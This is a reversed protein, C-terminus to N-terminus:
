KLQLFFILPTIACYIILRKLSIFSQLQTKLQIEVTHKIESWHEMEKRWSFIFSGSIKGQKLVIIFLLM